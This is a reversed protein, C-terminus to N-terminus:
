VSILMKTSDSDSVSSALTVSSHVNKQDIRSTVERFVSMNLSCPAFFNVLVKTSLIYQSVTLAASSFAITIQICKVKLATLFVRIIHQM